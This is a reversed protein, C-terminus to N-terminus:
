DKVMQLYIATLVEADLMAGHSTSMSYDIGYRECLANLNNKQEPHLEKAIRLTETVKNCIDDVPPLGLREFEANLFGVDFPANHVILEADRIFLAVEKAVEAFKPESQLRELTLGHVEAAGYDVEREPNFYLHLRRSTINRGILEIAALEVIRHGAESDLGTTETELVVRRSLKLISTLKPINKKTPV